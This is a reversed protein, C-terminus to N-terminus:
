VTTPVHPITQLSLEVTRQIPFDAGTTIAHNHRRRYKTPVLWIEGFMRDDRQEVSTAFKAANAVWCTAVSIIRSAANEYGLM